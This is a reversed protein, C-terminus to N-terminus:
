SSEPVGWNVGSLVALAGPAGSAAGFLAALRIACANSQWLSVLSTATPTMASNTPTSNMEVTAHRALDVGMAGIDGVVNDGDLLVLTQAPLGASVAFPLKFFESVGQPAVTGNPDAVSASNAVDKSAIWCLRGEGTNVSDLMARVDARMDDPSNGISAIEPTSSDVLTSYFGVDLVKAIARKLQRALFAESASTQNELLERTIVVTVEATLPILADANISMKSVPSARGELAINGIAATSAAAVKDRLPARTVIGLDLLAAFASRQQLGQLFTTSAARLDAIDGAWIPNGISGAGIAAKLVRVVAPPAGFGEAIIAAHNPDGEAKVLAKILAPYFGANPNGAIKELMSM